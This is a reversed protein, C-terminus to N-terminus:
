KACYMFGVRGSFLLKRLDKASASGMAWQTRCGAGIGRPSLEQSSGAPPRLGAAALLGAQAPDSCATSGQGHAGAKLSECYVLGVHATANTAFMATRGRPGESWPWCWSYRMTCPRSQHIDRVSSLKCYCYFLADRSNQLGGHAISM